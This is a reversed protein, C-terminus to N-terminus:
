YPNSDIHNKIYDILPTIDNQKTFDVEKGYTDIFAREENNLQTYDKNGITMKKMVAMMGRHVINLKKYDIGGRFHFVKVKNRLEAPLNKDLIKSYDTEEPNALGVTFLILEKPPNKTVLNIGLIGSAYLGGGFIVLDYDSIDESKVSSRELLKADLAEAIWEAYQKTTGYHSKYIVAIKM